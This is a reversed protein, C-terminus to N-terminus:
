ASLVRAAAGYESPTLGFRQRFRRSFHAADVFGARQAIVRIPARPQRTLLSRALELRMDWICDALTCGHQQFAEQLRRLSVGVDAAVVAPALQPETLRRGIADRGRWVLADALASSTPAPATPAAPPAALPELALAILERAAAATRQALAPRPGATQAAIGRWNSARRRRRDRRCVKTRAGARLGPLGSYASM